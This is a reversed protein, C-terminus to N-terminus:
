RSEFYIIPIVNFDNFVGVTSINTVGREEYMLSRLRHPALRLDITVLVSLNM